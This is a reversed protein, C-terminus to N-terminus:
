HSSGRVTLTGELTYHITEEGNLLRTMMSLALEGVQERPYHIVTLAPTTLTTLMINESGAIALCEPVAIGHTKAALLVGAAMLDNSCILATFPMGAPHEKLYEAFVAEANEARGSGDLEAVLVSEEGLEALAARFARYRHTLYAGGNGATMFGLRNHGVALLHGILEKYQSSWDLDISSVENGAVDDGINISVVPIRTSHLREMTEPKLCQGLLFIGDVRGRLATILQEEQEESYAQFFLLYGERRAADELRLLIGAEFPNGLYNVFVAIQNTSKTKLSRALLNPEYKLEKVAALVRQKTEEKVNDRGNLVYSVVAVSVGALDAVEKRSAM